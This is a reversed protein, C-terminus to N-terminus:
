TIKDMFCYYIKANSNILFDLYDKLFSLDKPNFLSALGCKFRKTSIVSSKLEDKAGFILKYKNEFSLYQKEINEINDMSFGIISCIFTEFYENAAIASETIKRTHSSEDYFFTFSM